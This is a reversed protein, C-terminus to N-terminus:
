SSYLTSPTFIALPLTSLRFVPVPTDIEPRGVASQASIVIAFVCDPASHHCIVPVSDFWVSKCVANFALFVSEIFVSLNSPLHVTHTPAISSIISPVFRESLPLVRFAAADAHAFGDTETHSV